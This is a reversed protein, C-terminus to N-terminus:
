ESMIHIDEINLYLNDEFTYIMELGRYHPFKKVYKHFEDYVEQIRKRDKSRAELTVEVGMTFKKNKM